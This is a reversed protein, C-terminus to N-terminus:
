LRQNSHELHFHLLNQHGGSALPRGPKGGVVMVPLCVKEWCDTLRASVTTV